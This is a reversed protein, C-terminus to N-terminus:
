EYQLKWFARALKVFVQYKRLDREEKNKHYKRWMAKTTYRTTEWEMESLEHVFHPNIDMLKKLNETSPNTELIDKIVM